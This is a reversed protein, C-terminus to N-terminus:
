HDYYKAPRICSMGVGNEKISLEGLVDSLNAVSCPGRKWDADNQTPQVPAQDIAQFATPNPYSEPLTLPMSSVPVFSFDPQNLNGEITAPTRFSELGHGYIAQANHMSDAPQGFDYMQTGDGHHGYHEDEGSASSHDFDLVSELGSFSGGGGHVRDYNLSPPVCQLKLRVCAACPWTNTTAADCKIKRRRCGECARMVTRLGEDAPM